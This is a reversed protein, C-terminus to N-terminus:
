DVKFKVEYKKNKADFVLLKYIGPKAFQGLDLEYFNSGTSKANLGSGVQQSAENNKASTTILENKQDYLYFKLTESKYPEELHFYIKGNEAHYVTGDNKTKLRYYTPEKPEVKPQITFEFAESKDVIVNNEVKQVQWGYRFGEKLQPADFPYFLQTTSLQDMKLLPLNIIVGAAASQEDKLEVLILRYYSRTNTQPIAGLYNWSLLPTKTEITDTNAPITLLVNQQAIAKGVLLQFFCFLAIATTKRM